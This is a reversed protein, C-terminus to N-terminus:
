IAINDCLESAPSCHAPTSVLTVTGTGAVYVGPAVLNNITFTNAAPVATLGYVVGNLGITGGCNAFSVRDGVVFTHTGVTTITCGVANTIGLITRAPVVFPDMASTDLDTVFTTLGTVTIKVQVYDLHMGYEKPVILVVYEDSSYGHAATTTVVANMATTLNAIFRRKPVFDPNGM